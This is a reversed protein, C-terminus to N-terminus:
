VSENFGNFRRSFGWENQQLAVTVYIQLRLENPQFLKCHVWDERM